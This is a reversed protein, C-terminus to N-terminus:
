KKVSHLEKTPKSSQAVTKEHSKLFSPAVNWQQGNDTIVSVTKQNYRTLMGTLMERGEPQFCVRDGIKFKLMQSHTRLQRIFKLRAVIQNNLDILEDETFKELDIEM